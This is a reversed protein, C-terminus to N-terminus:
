LSNQVMFNPLVSISNLAILFSSLIMVSLIHFPTLPIFIFSIYFYWKKLDHRCLPCVSSKCLWNKLCCRHFIHGCELKKIIQDEAFGEICIACTKTSKKMIMTRIKLHPKHLPPIELAVSSMTFLLLILIIINYLRYAM